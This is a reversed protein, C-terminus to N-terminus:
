RPDLALSPGLREILSDRRYQIAWAQEGVDFSGARCQRLDIRVREVELELLATKAASAVCMGTKGGEISVIKLTQNEIALAIDDEGLFLKFGRSKADRWMESLEGSDGAGVFIKLEEFM